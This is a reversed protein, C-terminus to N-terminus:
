AIVGAKYMDVVYVCSHSLAPLAVGFVESRLGAGFLSPHYVLTVTFQDFDTGVTSHGVGVDLDPNAFAARVEEEISACAQAVGGGYPPAAAHVRVAERAVRDFVACESFFTCANFAIAAVVILVPLAAAMEVTMQGSERRLLKGVGM